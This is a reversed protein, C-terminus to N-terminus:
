FKRALSHKVKESNENAMKDEKKPKKVMLRVVDLMRYSFGTENDYWSLIKIQNEGIVKTMSGDIYSSESAGNFDNSVLPLDTYGMIGKLDAHSAQKLCENVKEKTTKQKVKFTVDVLSVNPTPVRVALGDIKGALDPLVLGIAKAAGTSTPIMNM